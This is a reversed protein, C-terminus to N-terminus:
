IRSKSAVGSLIMYLTTFARSSPESLVNNDGQFMKVVLLLMMMMAMMMMVLMMMLVMREM